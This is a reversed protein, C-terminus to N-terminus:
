FSPRSETQVRFNKKGAGELGRCAASHLDRCSKLKSSAEEVDLVALDVSERSSKQEGKLREQYQQAEALGEMATRVDAFLLDGESCQVEMNAGGQEFTAVVLALNSLAQM